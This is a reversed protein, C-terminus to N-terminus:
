ELTISTPPPNWGEGFVRRLLPAMGLVRTDRCREEETKSGWPWWKKGGWVDRMAEREDDAALWWQYYFWTSGCRGLPGEGNDWWMSLRSVLSYNPAAPDALWVTIFRSPHLLMLANMLTQDKGVFVGQSLYSDHYAYYLKRWWNIASPRGGFFSGESFENDVPGMRETWHKMSAHPTDWIPFFILDDEPAGNLRAGERWIADVREASPWDAYKHDSRFSGADNWFAYDYRKGSGQANKLGEELFYPKGAWIAYLEPSHRNKERDIQHMEAYKDELGKLPPIDFPSTYSTNITIPLSGRADRVLQEMDPPAFFYIDTTIPGLFRSLWYSYDSMPHKSKSLPFFASVLLIETTNPATNPGDEQPHILDSLTASGSMPDPTIVMWSPRFTEFTFYSLILGCTLLVLLFICSRKRALSSLGM